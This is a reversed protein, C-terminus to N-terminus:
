HTNYIICTKIKVECEMGEVDIKIIAVKSDVLALIDELLVTDVPPASPQFLSIQLATILGNVLEYM